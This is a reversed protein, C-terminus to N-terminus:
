IGFLLSCNSGGFGFSNTLVLDIKSPETKLCINAKLEPDKEKTNMTGPCYQQQLAICSFLAETIGAAGLTHGIGGKTSSCKTKEGFLQIIAQDESADNNRTATGHANIYDIDLTTKNAQSLARQMAEVAGLGQPHPTSMHWADSSEGYALFAIQDETKEIIAYAAAEGLSLGKRNLGWPQCPDNSILQLANFGYLSTLCLSDVGGVIAADCIGAQIYRWAEAFVKASSSCATSITHAPGKLGLVTRVFSVVSYMSHTGHWPFDLSLAQKLHSRQLYTDETYQVGSSSTGLFLGIRNSNYKRKLQNVSEIFDDQELALLALQNNRCTYNKLSKELKVNDVADVRGLWTDLETEKDCFHSLACADAKLGEVSAKEGEGYANTMTFATLFLDTM